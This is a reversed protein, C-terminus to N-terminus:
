FIRWRQCLGQVAVARGLSSGGNIMSALRRQIMSQAAARAVTPNTQTDATVFGVKKGSNRLTGDLNKQSFTNLM